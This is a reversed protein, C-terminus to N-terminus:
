KKLMEKKNIKLHGSTQKLDLGLLVTRCCQAHVWGPKCTDTVKWEKVSFAGAASSVRQFASLTTRSIARRQRARTTRSFTSLKCNFGERCLQAFHSWVLNLAFVQPLHAM